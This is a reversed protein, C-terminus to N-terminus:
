EGLSVGCPRFCYTMGATKSRKTQVTIAERKRCGEATTLEEVDLGLEKCKQRTMRIDPREMVIEEPNDFHSQCFSHGPMPSAACATFENLHGSTQIKEGTWSCRNRYIKQDGDMIVIRSRCKQCIHDLWKADIAEKLHPYLFCSIAEIDLGRDSNRLVPFTLKKLKKHISYLIWVPFIRKRNLEFREITLKPDTSDKHVRNYKDVWSTFRTSCTFISEELDELLKVEFFSDQTVSFFKPMIDAYQRWDCDNEKWETYCSYVSAFCSTCHKVYVQISRPGSVTYVTANKGIRKGRRTFILTGSCRDCIELPSVIYLDTSQDPFTFKSKTYQDILNFVIKKKREDSENDLDIENLKELEPPVEVSVKDDSKNDFKLYQLLIKENRGPIESPCDKVAKILLILKSLNILVMTLVLFIDM